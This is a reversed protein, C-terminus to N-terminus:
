AVTVVIPSWSMKILTVDAVLARIVQVVEVGVVLRKHYIASGLLWFRDSCYEFKDSPYTVKWVILKDPM